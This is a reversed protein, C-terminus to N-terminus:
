LVQPFQLLRGLRHGVTNKNAGIIPHAKFFGPFEAFKVAGAIKYIRATLKQDPSLKM